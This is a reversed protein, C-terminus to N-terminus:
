FRDFLILDILAIAGAIAVMCFISLLLRPLMSAYPGSVIKPLPVLWGVSVGSTICLLAALALLLPSATPNYPPEGTQAIAHHYM